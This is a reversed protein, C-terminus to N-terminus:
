CFQQRKTNRFLTELGTKSTTEVGVLKIGHLVGDFRESRFEVASLLCIRAVRESREGPLQL